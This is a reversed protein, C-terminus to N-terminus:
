EANLDLDGVVGKAKSIFWDAFEQVHRPYVRSGGNMISDPVDAFARSAECAGEPYEDYLGVLHGFEHARVHPSVGRSSAWWTNSYWWRETGWGQPDCAGPFLQVKEGHGAAWKVRFRITWSCCGQDSACNCEMGRKCQKRHLSFRKSFVSEIQRRWRAKDAESATARGRLDFDIKRLVYFLGDQVVLEYCYEWRFTERVDLWLEGFGPIDFKEHKPASRQAPGIKQRQNAVTPVELENSSLKPGTYGIAKLKFRKDAAFAGRRVWWVQRASSGSVRPCSTAPLPQSQTGFELKLPIRVTNRYNKVRVQFYVMDGCCAKDKSFSVAVLEAPEKKNPGNGMAMNPPQLNTGPPTNVPSGGNQLMIDSLRFVNDGDAKVDMSHLKPYAKGKIKNSVVGQASGAEDGSSMAYNSGKLMIPQGDAKVTGAGDATDTSMAINPYPIPIPGAPSPTKCVDPFAPSTGNSSKHVVTLSNVVVTAPM